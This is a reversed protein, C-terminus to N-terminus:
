EPRYQQQAKILAERDLEKLRDVSEWDKLPELPVLSCQIGLGNAVAEFQHPNTFDPDHSLTELWDKPKMALQLTLSSILTSATTSSDNKPIRDAELLKATLYDDPWMVMSSGVANSELPPAPLMSPAPRHRKPVPEASSTKSATKTAEVLTATMSKASAPPSENLSASESDNDSDDSDYVGLTDMPLTKLQFSSVLEPFAVNPRTRM